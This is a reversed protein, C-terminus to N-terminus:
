SLVPNYPTTASLKLELPPVHLSHDLLNPCTHKLALTTWNFQCKFIYTVLRTVLALFRHFLHITQWVDFVEISMDTRLQSYMTKHTTTKFHFTSHHLPTPQSWSQGIEICISHLRLHITPCLLSPLQHKITSLSYNWFWSSNASM